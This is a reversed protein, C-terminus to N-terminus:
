ITRSPPDPHTGCGVITDRMQLDGPLRHLPFRRELFFELGEHAVEVFIQVPDSGGITLASSARRDSVSKQTARATYAPAISRNKAERAYLFARTPDAAVSTAHPPASVCAADIAVRPRETWRTGHPFMSSYAFMSPNRM